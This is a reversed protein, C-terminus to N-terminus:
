TRKESANPERDAGAVIGPQWAGQALASPCRAEGRMPREGASCSREPSSSEVTSSSPSPESLRQIIRSPTADCASSQRTRVFSLEKAPARAGRLEGDSVTRAAEGDNRGAGLRSSGPARTARRASSARRQTTASGEIANQSAAALFARTSRGAGPRPSPACRRPEPRAGRASRPDPPRRGLGLSPRSRRELDRMAGISRGIAMPAASARRGLACRRRRHATRPLRDSGVRPRGARDAVPPRVSARSAAARTGTRGAARSAARCGVRPGQSAHRCAAVSV